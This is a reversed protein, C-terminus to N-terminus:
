PWKELVLANKIIELFPLPDAGGGAFTCRIHFAKIHLLIELRLVAYAVIFACAVWATIWKVTNQPRDLQQFLM